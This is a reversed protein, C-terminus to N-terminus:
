DQALRVGIYDFREAADFWNRTSSRMWAPTDCWSGGRLVRGCDAAGAVPSGDTPAGRYNPVYCDQTWQWVNGLMDYLGIRNAPFQGVPALEMWVDRGKVGTGNAEDASYANGWWYDTDSGARTAYEWEAESPLRFKVASRANLWAILAQADDWSVNVAPYANRNAPSITGVAQEFVAYQASTLDFRM